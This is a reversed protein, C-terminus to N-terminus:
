TCGPLTKHLTSRAIKDTVWAAPLDFGVFHVAEGETQEAFAIEFRKRVKMNDKWQLAFACAGTGIKMSMCGFVPPM